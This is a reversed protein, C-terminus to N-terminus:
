DGRAAAANGRSSRRGPRLRRCLITKETEDDRYDILRSLRSIFCFRKTSAVYEGSGDECEINRAFAIRTIETKNVYCPLIDPVRFM